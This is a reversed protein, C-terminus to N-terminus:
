ITRKLDRLKIVKKNNTLFESTTNIWEFINNRLEGNAMNLKFSVVYDKKKELLYIRLNPM